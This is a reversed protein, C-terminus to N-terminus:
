KGFVSILWGELAKLSISDGVPMEKLQVLGDDIIYYRFPWSSYITNYSNNMDDIVFHIHDDFPFNSTLTQAATYREQLTVHQKMTDNIGPMPWEDIAHAEM